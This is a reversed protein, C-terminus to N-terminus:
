QVYMGGATAIKLLQILQLGFETQKLEGFGDISSLASGESKSVSVGGVNKSLAQASVGAGAIRSMAVNASENEDPAVAFTQAYLTLKHAVYLRRAEEASDLCDKFRLNSQKIQECMVMEPIAGFQPYYTLFEAKTM